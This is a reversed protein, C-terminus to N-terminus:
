RKLFKRFFLRVQDEQEVTDPSLRYRGGNVGVEGNVASSAVQGGPGVAPVNGGKRTRYYTDVRDLAKEASLEPYLIGLLCAAM